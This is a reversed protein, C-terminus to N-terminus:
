TKICNLLENLRAVCFVCLSRPLDDFPCWLRRASRIPAGCYAEMAFGHAYGIHPHSRGTKLLRLDMKGAVVHPLMELELEELAQLWKRKACEICAIATDPVETQCTACIM